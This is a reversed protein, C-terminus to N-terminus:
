ELNLKNKLMYRTMLYFLAGPIAVSLFYVGFASQIQAFGCMKTFMTFLHEFDISKAIIAYIIQGITTIVIYMLFAFGVRHKNVLLSLAMCAYLLLIGSFLSAILLIVAEITILVANFGGESLAQFFARVADMFENFTVGTTAMISVAIMVVIFSAVSWISSVLLKSWILRDTSVPLTFMLYGESRLLNRYFRQLTIILAIVCIAVIMIVAITTGIIKPISLELQWFVRNVAAVAFLAIFMPLFIRGTARFEYKM